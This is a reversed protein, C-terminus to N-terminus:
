HGNRRWPCHCPWTASLILPWLSRRACLVCWLRSSFVTSSTWLLPTMERLTTRGRRRQWLRAYFVFVFFLYVCFNLLIYSFLYFLDNKEKKVKILGNMLRQDWRILGVMQMRSSFTPSRESATWTRMYDMWFFLWFSMLIRSSTARSSPLLAAWRHRSSHPPSFFFLCVKQFFCM